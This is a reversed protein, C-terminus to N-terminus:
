EDKTEDQKSKVGEVHVNVQVVNLGTMAEISQNVKKQIELAVNQIQIGFNVIVFVDVVIEDDNRVVKIGKNVSKKGLMEVIGSTIGGFMESVGEVEMTALSAISCIVEESIHLSGNQNNIEKTMINGGFM